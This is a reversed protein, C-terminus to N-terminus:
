RRSRCRAGGEGTVQRRSNRSGLAAASPAARGPCVHFSEGSWPAISWARRLLKTKYKHSSDRTESTTNQAPIVIGVSRLLGSPRLIYHVLILHDTSRGTRQLVMAWKKKVQASVWRNFSKFRRIARLEYALNGSAGCLQSYREYAM